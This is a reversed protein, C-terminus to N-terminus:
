CCRGPCICRGMATAAPCSWWRAVPRCTPRFNTRDTQHVNLRPLVRVQHVDGAGLSRGGFVARQLRGVDDGPDPQHGAAAGPHTGGRCWAGRARQGCLHWGPQPVDCGRGHSARVRRLLGVLRVAAVRGGDAGRFPMVATGNQEFYWAREPVDYEAEVVCGARMQNPPADVGVVRTMFHYPPGPLRPVRRPGDFPVYLPGFADTPRGRACALLSVYGPDVQGRLGGLASLPMLEGTEQVAPPGLHRWHELPWDPVLRLGVRRAHFARVGDVTCLLDAWLVDASLGRVFVECRLERSAPTVQGRCRLTYPQDPVPEFRWGDQELTRGTAALYFAMAQLCGDFMLTGPMCPDDTFHGDFFWDDASVPTRACLYGRGWPGGRPDVESVEGLMLLWGDAIRPTRVHSRAADWQPGFCDAPRGQAFARVQEASFGRRAMDVVQHPETPSEAAPDWLVGASAALEADTFFGAQGGRVSLPVQDGIRCDSHFFFLRVGEHEAHHDVHIDFRLTEGPVPPSGHFILECGLLRYVREGRNRLDVGLWKILLLDAQGAEVMLGAPMRGTPDLYWGDLRVDTETWIVGTGMSGLEADFGTVRDVLLMPPAPMRTQRRYEDQEAFASGLVDSIRGIALKELQARDLTVTQSQNGRALGLVPQYAALFRQHVQARLTLYDLHAQVVPHRAAGPAPALVPELSPAPAMTAAAPQLVPLHVAPPHAPVTISAPAPGAAPALRDFLASTNVTAGAALLEAVVTSLHALDRGDASDLALALHERGTLTAASWRSCLSRPGHEIFVRVGDAWAREITTAFDMTGVALETLVDACTDADLPYPAARAVSYFRVGDVPTVPWRHLRRWEPAVEGVEPTHVALPYPIALADMGALARACGAVEGGVVCSDPANVAVLHVGPEAAIASRVRDAPAAVLYTAWPQGVVGQRDWVRRVAAFEGSLEHTFLGSAVFKTSLDGLSTWAGLAVLANAEGASYGLAAEPRLGLVTRTLTAHLRSLMTTGWIQDLVGEVHAHAETYAWGAHARLWGPSRDLGEVLDPFALLLERGMGPYAALGGTFVFAVQGTIPRVSFAVGAPPQPAGETLWRRAAEARAHRQEDTAALLVLRAQGNPDEAGTALARLVEARDVGSYMYPRPAPEAAIGTPADARLRTRRPAAGLVRVRAEATRAGLVPVASAGVRTIM